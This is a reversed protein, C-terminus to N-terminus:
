ARRAGFRSIAHVASASIFSLELRTPRLLDSYRLGTAITARRLLNWVVVSYGLTSAFAAGLIGFAPLLAALALTSVLLGTVEARLVARPLGLGRLCEQLVFGFALIGSAVVLVLGPLVADSFRDGFFLPIALPTALGM